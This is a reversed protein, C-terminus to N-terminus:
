KLIYYLIFYYFNIKKEDIFNNKDILLNENKGSLYDCLKNKMTKAMDISICDLHELLQYMNENDEFSNNNFLAIIIDIYIEDFKKEYLDNENWKLGINNLCHINKSIIYENKIKIPKIEKEYKYEDFDEIGEYNHILIIIIKSIILKIIHNKNTIHLDNIHKIADMQYSYNIFNPKDTILLCLYILFAININNDDFKLNIIIEKEKLYEHFFNKGKYFYKIINLCNKNNKNNLIKILEECIQEDIPVDPNVIDEKPTEYNSITTTM